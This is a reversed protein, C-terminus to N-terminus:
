KKRDISVREVSEVFKSAANINVAHLTFERMGTHLTVSADLRGIESSVGDVADYKVEDMNTFLPIQNLYIIRLDTVALLASAGDDLRGCAVGLLKEGDHLIKAIYFTEPRLMDLWNLGLERLRRRVATRKSGKLPKEKM